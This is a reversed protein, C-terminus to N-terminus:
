GKSKLRYTDAGSRFEMFSKSEYVFHVAIDGDSNTWDGRLGFCDLGSSFTMQMRDGLFIFRDHYADLVAKDAQKVSITGQYKHANLYCELEKRDMVNRALSGNFNSMVVVRCNPECYRTIECIFDAGRKNINKDFIFVRREKLFYKSLVSPNVKGGPKLSIIEAIKMGWPHSSPSHKYSNAELIPVGWGSPNLATFRAQSNAIIVSAGHYAAGLYNSSLCTKDLGYGELSKDSVIYHNASVSFNKDFWEKYMGASDSISMYEEAIAKTVGLVSSHAAILVGSPSGNFCEELAEREIVARM